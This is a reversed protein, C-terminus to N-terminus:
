SRNRAIAIRIKKAPAGEDSVAPAESPIDQMSIEIGEKIKMRVYAVACPYNVSKDCHRCFPAYKGCLEERLGKGNVFKDNDIVQQLEALNEATLVRPMGSLLELPRDENWM